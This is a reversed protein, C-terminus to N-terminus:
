QSQLDSVQRGYKCFVNLDLSLEIDSRKSNDASVEKVTTFSKIYARWLDDKRDIAKSIDVEGNENLIITSYLDSNDFEQKLSKELVDKPMLITYSNILKNLDTSYSKDYSMRRSNLNSQYVIIKEKVRVIFKFLKFKTSSDDNKANELVEKEDDSTLIYWSPEDGSNYVPASSSETALLYFLEKLFHAKDTELEKMKKTTKDLALGPELNPTFYLVTTKFPRIQRGSQCFAAKIDSNTVGFSFPKTSFGACGFISSLCIIKSFIWFFKFPKMRM